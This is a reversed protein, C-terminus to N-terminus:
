ISYKVPKITMAVYIQEFIFKINRNIKLPKFELNDSFWKPPQLDIADFKKVLKNGVGLAYAYPLVMYFYDPNENTLEQLQTKDAKKVFRRFGVIKRFLEANYINKKKMIGM